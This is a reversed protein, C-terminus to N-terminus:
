VGLPEDDPICDDAIDQAWTAIDSISGNRVNIPIGRKYIKQWFKDLFEKKEESSM